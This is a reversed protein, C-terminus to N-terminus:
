RSVRSNSRSNSRSHGRSNNKSTEVMEMDVQMLDHKSLRQGTNLREIVQLTLTLPSSCRVPRRTPPIVAAADSLLVHSFLVYFAFFLVGALKFCEKANDVM